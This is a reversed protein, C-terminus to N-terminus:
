RVVAINIVSYDVSGDSSETQLRCLYLGTVAGDLDMSISFPEQARVDTWESVSVLEGELNYVSARVRSASVVKARVNLPGEKLPSPYCLHSGSVVGSGQGPSPLDPWQTMEWNGNRWPSAGWMPWLADETAVSSWVTLSSYDTTRLSGDSEELGDIRSFTGVAVMQQGTGSLVSGVAPTGASRAPGAVPWGSIPTGDQNWALIRGDKVPFLFQQSNADAGTLPLVLASGALEPASSNISDLPRRPWGDSWGGNLSVRGLLGESVMAGGPALPSNLLVEQDWTKALGTEQFDADFFITVAQGGIGPIHAYRESAAGQGPNVLGIQVPFSGPLIPLDLSIQQPNGPDQGDEVSCFVLRGEANLTDAIAVVINQWGYVPVSPVVVPGLDFELSTLGADDYLHLRSNGSQQLVLAAEVPEDASYAAGRNVPILIPPLSCADVEVALGHNGPNISVPHGDNQFAYLGRPGSLLIEAGVASSSWNGAAAPQNWDVPDNDYTGVVFPQVTSADGDHDLIENLQGDLVFIEGESGCVLIESTAADADLNTLLLHSGRLDVGSNLQRRAVIGPVNGVSSETQLEFFMTDAYDFGWLTDAPSADFDIGAIFSLSDLVVNSINGFLVHTTAGSATATNPITGPGFTFNDEGRFSDDDGGLLFPSPERSDLDQIGDAEELDVSKHEADANFRNSSMSFVDEIVGEDIHWIYLGSGAGKHTSERASNESMFFDWEAGLLRERTDTLPDFKGIPQGTGSPNSTDFFDPINNGNLDGPFSFIRNGDPDQLRYALLWYEQGTIDVRLSARAEATQECPTLFFHNPQLPDVLEPDLWGMLYKNFACPHPPIWGMGVFLGYGMLGFEGIGQSDPRGSPTFDSLSLMGLRLGVEFCYVGLSGFFGGASGVMDQYECEPLVLVQTIGEGEPFNVSPLYPQALEEDDFAQQFDDADLFTSYIQEPSNGLIDTEEGAGAHIVIFTDYLSFDIESDLSDVVADVMSITQEGMDPDNGYYSMPHPLNIVRSHITYNFSFSGGSVDSYYDQVDGFLHDFFVSDHASYYIESQMPPPFDGEVLGYRGYLLSDSFDCMLVIANLSGPAKEGGMRMRQISNSGDDRMNISRRHLLKQMGEPLDQGAKTQSVLQNGDAALVMSVSLVVVALFLLFVKNSGQM